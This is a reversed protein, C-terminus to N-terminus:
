GHDVQVQILQVTMSLGHNCFSIKILAELKRNKLHITLM